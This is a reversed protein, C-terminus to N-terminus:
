SLSGVPQAVSYCTLARAAKWLHKWNDPLWVPIRYEGGGCGHSMEWITVTPDEGFLAPHPSDYPSDANRRMSALQYVTVGFSEPSTVGRRLFVDLTHSGDCESNRCPICVRFSPQVRYGHQAPFYRWAWGVLTFFWAWRKEFNTM